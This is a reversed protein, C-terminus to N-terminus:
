QSEVNSNSIMDKDNNQHTTKHKLILNKMVVLAVAALLKAARHTQKNRKDNSRGSGRGIQHSSNSNVLVNSDYIRRGGRAGGQQEDSFDQKQSSALGSPLAEKLVSHQCLGRRVADLVRAVNSDSFRLCSYIM